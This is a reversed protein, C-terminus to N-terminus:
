FFDKELDVWAPDVERIVVLEDDKKMEERARELNAEDMLTYQARREKDRRKKERRERKRREAAEKDAKKRAEEYAKEQEKKKKEAEIREEHEKQEKTENLHLKLAYVEQPKDEESHGFGNHLKDYFMFITGNQTSTLTADSSSECGHTPDTSHPENACIFDATGNNTLFAQSFNTATAPALGELLKKVMKNHLEAINIPKESGKKSGQAAAWLGPLGRLGTYISTYFPSTYSHMLNSFKSAQVKEWRLGMYISEAQSYNGPKGAIVYLKTDGWRMLASEEGFPIPIYSVFTWNRGDESKYLAHAETGNALLLNVNRFYTNYEEFNATQDGFAIIDQPAKEETPPKNFIAVEPIALRNMAASSFIGAPAISFGHQSFTLIDELGDDLLQKTICRLVRDQGLIGATGCFDTYEHKVEWTKGDDATYATVYECSGDAACHYHSTSLRVAALEPGFSLARDPRWLRKGPKARGVHHLSVPKLVYANVACVLLLALFLCSTIRSM